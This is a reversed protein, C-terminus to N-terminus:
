FESIRLTFNRNLFIWPHNSKIHHNHTRMIERDLAMILFHRQATLLQRLRRVYIPHDSTFSPISGTYICSSFRIPLVLCYFHVFQGHRFHRSQSQLHRINILM